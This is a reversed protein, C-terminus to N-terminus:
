ANDWTVARDLFDRASEGREVAAKGYVVGM